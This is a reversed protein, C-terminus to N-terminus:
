QWGRVERTSIAHYDPDTSSLRSFGKRCLLEDIGNVLDEERDDCTEWIHSKGHAPLSSPRDYALEFSIERVYQTANMSRYHLRLHRLTLRLRDVLVMTGTKMLALISEAENEIKRSIEPVSWDSPQGFNHRSARLTLSQLTYQNNSSLASMVSRLYFQYPTEEARVHPSFYRLDYFLSTLNSCSHFIESLAKPDMLEGHFSLKTVNSTGPHLTPVLLDGPLNTVYSKKLNRISLSTLSPLSMFLRIYHMLDTNKLYLEVRKLRPLIGNMTDKMAALSLATKVCDAQKDGDGLMLSELNPCQLLLLAILADADGLHLARKWRILNKKHRDGMLAHPLAARFATMQSDPYPVHPTPVTNSPIFLDNKPTFHPFWYPVNLTKIHHGIFPNNLVKSLIGALVGATANNGDENCVILNSVTSYEKKMEHYRLLVPLSIMHIHRSLVSVAELDEPFVHQVILFILENPLKSLSAM